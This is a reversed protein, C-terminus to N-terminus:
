EKGITESMELLLAIYFLSDMLQKQMDYATKEFQFDFLKYGFIALYISQGIISIKLYVGNQMFFKPDAQSPMQSKKNNKLRDSIELIKNIFRETVIKKVENADECFLKFNEDFRSNGTEVANGYDPLFRKIFNKVIPPFKLKSFLAPLPDIVIRHKISINHSVHLFLGSFIISQSSQSSESSSSTKIVELESFRIKKDDITGSFYDDGSFSTYDQTFLQGANFDAESIHADAQYNLEPYVHALLPKILKEKFYKFYATKGQKYFLLILVASLILLISGIMYILFENEEGFFRFVNDKFVLSLVLLLAFPLLVLRIAKQKIAAKIELRKTEIKDLNTKCFANAKDLRVSTNKLSMINKTDKQKIKVTGLSTFLNVPSCNKKRILLRFIYKKHIHIKSFFDIFKDFCSNSISFSFGLKASYVNFFTLM